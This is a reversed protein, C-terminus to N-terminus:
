KLLELRRSIGELEAMAGQQQGDEPWNDRFLEELLMPQMAGQQHGDHQENRGEVEINPEQQQENVIKFVPKALQSSVGKSCVKFITLCKVPKTPMYGHIEKVKWDDWNQKEKVIHKEGM